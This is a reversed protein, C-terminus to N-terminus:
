MDPALNSRQGHELRTADAEGTYQWAPRIRSQIPAIHRSLFDSLVMMSSLGHGPLFQIRGVMLNFAAEQQPLEEWLDRDGIPARTPFVLRDHPDALV